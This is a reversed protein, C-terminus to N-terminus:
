ISLLCHSKLVDRALIGRATELRWTFLLYFSWSHVLKADTEAEQILKELASDIAKAGPAGPWRHRIVGKHDIIFFTPTYSLNWKTAIPGTTANGPDVFSRWTIKQKEM